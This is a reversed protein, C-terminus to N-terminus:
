AAEFKSAVDPTGGSSVEEYTTGDAATLERVQELMTVCPQCLTTGGEAGFNFFTIFRSIADEIALPEFAYLTRRLM